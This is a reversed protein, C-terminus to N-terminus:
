ETPQGKKQKFIDELGCTKLKIFDMTDTQKKPEVSSQSTPWRNVIKHSVGLPQDLHKLDYLTVMHGLLEVGLLEM